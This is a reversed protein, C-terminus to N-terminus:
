SSDDPKAAAAPYRLELTQGPPLARWQAVLALLQTHLAALQDDSLKPAVASPRVGAVAEGVLVNFEDSVPIRGAFVENTLQGVICEAVIAEDPLRAAVGKAAFDALNWGAILLGFFGSSLGLAGEVAYHALDHWAGFAGAGLRGGTTSGDARVFTMAASGDDRKTLRFIM